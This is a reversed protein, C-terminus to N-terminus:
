ASSCTTGSGGYCEPHSPRRPLPRLLLHDSILRRMLEGTGDHALRGVFCGRLPRHLLDDVFQERAASDHSELGSASRGAMKAEVSHLAEDAEVDGRDLELAICPEVLM